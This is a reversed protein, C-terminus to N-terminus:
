YAKFQSYCSLLYINGKIKINSNLVCFFKL